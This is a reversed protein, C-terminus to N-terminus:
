MPDPPFGFYCLHSVFNIYIIKREFLTAEEQRVGTALVFCQPTIFPNDCKTQCGGKNSIENNGLLKNIAFRKREWPGFSTQSLLKLVSYTQENRGCSIVQNLSPM